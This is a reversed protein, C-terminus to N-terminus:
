RSRRLARPFGRPGSPRCWIAKGTEERRAGGPFLDARHRLLPGASRRLRRGAPRLFGRELLMDNNLLCVQSFRARAIGRNAAAAFALPSPISEVDVLFERSVSDATGDSSGNDVVLIESPIGGAGAAVRASAHGAPAKRKAVPGGGLRGARRGQAARRCDRCCRSGAGGSGGGRSCCRGGFPARIGCPAVPVHSMGARGGDGASCTGRGGGSTACSLGASRPRLMFHDLNENFAIFGAPRDAPRDAAAALVAHAAAPHHRFIADAPGAVRRAGRWIRRWAAAPHYPIWHGERAAFECVM